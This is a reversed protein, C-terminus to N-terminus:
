SGLRGTFINQRLIQCPDEASRRIINGEIDIRVATRQYSSVREAIILHFEPFSAYVATRFLAPKADKILDIHCFIICGANKMGCQIMSSHDIHWAIFSDIQM